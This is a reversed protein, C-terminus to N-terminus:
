VYLYEELEKGYQEYIISLLELWDARHYSRASEYSNIYYLFSENIENLNTCLPDKSNLKRLVRAMDRVAYYPYLFKRIKYNYKYFERIEREKKDLLILVIKNKEFQEKFMKMEIQHAELTEAFFLDKLNKVFKRTSKETFFRTIDRILEDPSYVININNYIIKACRELNKNHPTVLFLVFEMGRSKLSEFVELWFRNYDTNEFYTGIVQRNGGIDTGLLTYVTKITFCGEQRIKIQEAFFLLSIYCKKLKRKEFDILKLKEM